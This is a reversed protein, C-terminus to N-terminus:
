ICSPDILVCALFLAISPLALVSGASAVGAIAVSIWPGVQRRILVLALGAAIAVPIAVLIGAILLVGLVKRASQEEAGFLLFSFLL